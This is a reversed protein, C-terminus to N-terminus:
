VCVALERTISSRVGVNLGETDNVSVGIGCDKDIFAVRGVTDTVRADFVREMFVYLAEEDDMLVDWLECDCGMREVSVGIGVCTGRGDRVMLVKSTAESVDASCDEIGGIEVIACDEGPVLVVMSTESAEM